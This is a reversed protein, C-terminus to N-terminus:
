IGLFSLLIPYQYHRSGLDFNSQESLKEKIVSAVELYATPKIHKRPAKVDKKM